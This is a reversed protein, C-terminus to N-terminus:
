FNFIKSFNLLNEVTNAANIKNNEFDNESGISQFGRIKFFPSTDCPIYFIALYHYNFSYDKNVNIIRFTITETGEFGEFTSVEDVGFVSFYNIEDLILYSCENNWNNFINKKYVTLYNYLINYKKNKKLDLEVLNSNYIKM